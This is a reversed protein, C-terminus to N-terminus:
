FDSTDIHDVGSAVAERLVALAAQPDKPPGFIGPGSLRMAGYGLRRVSRRGLAFTGSPDLPTM